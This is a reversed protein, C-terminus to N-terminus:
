TPGPSAGARLCDLHHHYVGAGEGIAGGVRSKPAMWSQSSWCDYMCIKYYTIINLDSDSSSHINTPNPFTGNAPGSHAGALRGGESSWWSLVNMWGNMCRLCGPSFEVCRMWEDMCVHGRVSFMAVLNASNIGDRLFKLGMGPRPPLLLSFPLKPNPRLSLVSLWKQM